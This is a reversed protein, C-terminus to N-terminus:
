IPNFDEHCQGSRKVKMQMHDSMLCLFTTALSVYCELSTIPVWWVYLFISLIILIPSTLTNLSIVVRSNFKMERGSLNTSIELIHNTWIEWLLLLTFWIMLFSFYSIKGKFVWFSSLCILVCRIWVQPDIEPAAGSDFICGKIKQLIDNRM